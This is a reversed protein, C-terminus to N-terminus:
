QDMEVMKVVVHHHRCSVVVWLITWDLKNELSNCVGIMFNEHRHRSVSYARHTRMLDQRNLAIEASDIFPICYATRLTCYATRQVCITRGIGYASSTLEHSTLTERSVSKIIYNNTKTEHTSCSLKKPRQQM